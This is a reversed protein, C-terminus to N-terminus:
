AKRNTRAPLLETPDASELQCCSFLFGPLCGLLLPASISILISGGTRQPVAGAGGAGRPGGVGSTAASSSQPPTGPGGRPTLSPCPGTSPSRYDQIEPQERSSPPPRTRSHHPHPPMFLPNPEPRQWRPPPNQPVKKTRLSQEQGEPQPPPTWSAPRTLFRQSSHPTSTPPRIPLNNAQGPPRHLTRKFASNINKAITVFKSKQKRQTLQNPM